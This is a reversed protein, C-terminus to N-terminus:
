APSCPRPLAAPRYVQQAVLTLNGSAGITTLGSPTALVRIDGRSTLATNAFNFRIDSQLDILGASVELSGDTQVVPLVDAFVITDKANALGILGVYASQLRVTAGAKTNAIGGNWVQAAAPGTIFGSHSLTLSRGTALNVNGDFSIGSRTWLQVSDAGSAMITDATIHGHGILLTPDALGPRADAALDGTVDSQGITLIRAARMYAPVFSVNTESFLPSEFVVSLAGGSAGVGGAQARLTGDMYISSRSAIKISGGNSAAMVTRAGNVDTVTLEGATGSADLIAGPRIVVHSIASNRLTSNKEVAGTGGIVITGGDAVIGFSRGQMDRTVHARASVDLVATEGIWISRAGPDYANYPSMTGGPPFAANGDRVEIRGAPATIRGHVTIQGASVLAVKRGPDVTIGAGAAITIASDTGAFDPRGGSTLMLDAGARQTTSGKRANDLYLPSLSTTAAKAVDGDSALDFFAGSLQYTPMTVDIAADAAVTLSKQGNIAYSSFGQSFFDTALRLTQAQTQVAGGIVVAGGTDLTLAGGKGFGTSVLRGELKLQGTRTANANSAILTIDGGDGGNIKRTREVMGGASADIRSGAELTVHGSTSITVGGGDIFAARSPHASEDLLANTWAGQTDITAGAKVKMHSNGTTDVLPSRGLVQNGITVRGSHATLDAGVTVNAAQLDIVGGAAVGLTRDVVIDQTTWASIGGLGFGTLLDSSLSM